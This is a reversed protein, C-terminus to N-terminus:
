LMRYIIGLVSSVFYNPFGFFYSLFARQHYNSTCPFLSRGRVPHLDRGREFVPAIIILSMVILSINVDLRISKM